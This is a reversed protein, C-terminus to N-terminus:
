GDFPKFQEDRWNLAARVGATASLALFTDKEESQAMMMHTLLETHYAIAQWMGAQEFTANIGRKTYQVAAPAMTAMLRALKEAAPMLDEDPVVRNVLGVEYARQATIMSGGM